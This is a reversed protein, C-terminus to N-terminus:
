HNEHSHEGGRKAADTSGAAGSTNSNTKNSRSVGSAKGGKSAIEKQKDADMGAFGQNDTAM